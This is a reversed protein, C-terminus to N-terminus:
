YTCFLVASTRGKVDRAHYKGWIYLIKWQQRHKTYKNISKGRELTCNLARWNEYISVIVKVKELM